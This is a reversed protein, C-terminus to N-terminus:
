KAPTQLGLLGDQITSNARSLVKEAMQSTTPFSASSTETAGPCSFERFRELIIPTGPLLRLTKSQFLKNAANGGTVKNDQWIIKGLKEQSERGDKKKVTVMGSQGPRGKVLWDGKRGRDRLTLLEGMFDILWRHRQLEETVRPWDAPPAWSHWTCYFRGASGIDVTGRCPCGEARCAGVPRTSQDQAEQAAAGLERTKRIAEFPNV